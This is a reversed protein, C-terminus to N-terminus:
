IQDDPASPELRRLVWAMVPERKGKVVQPRPGHATAVPGLRDWTAERRGGLRARWPGPARPLIRRIAIVTFSRRGAAGVDRARHERRCPLDGSPIPNRWRRGAEHHGAGHPRGGRMIRSDDATHFSALVGDRRLARRCAAREIAPLRVAWYANLMTIVDTPTRTESYRSGPWIPSCCASERERRRRAVDPENRLRDRSKVSPVASVPTSGACSTAAHSLLAVRRTARRTSAGGSGIPRSAENAPPPWPPSRGAQRSDLRPSRRRSFVLGGFRGHALRAVINRERALAIAAFAVLMLVHM